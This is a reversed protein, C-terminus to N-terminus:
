SGACEPCLGVVELTHSVDTFGHKRAVKDAWREVEPGEVEVTRGCCRCLLHHHRGTTACRRFLMEGAETRM